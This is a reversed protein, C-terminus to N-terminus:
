GVGPSWVKGQFEPPPGKEKETRTIAAHLGLGQFGFGQLNMAVWYRSAELSGCFAEFAQSKPSLRSAITTIINLVYEYARLM